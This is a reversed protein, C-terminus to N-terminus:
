ANKARKIMEERTAADGSFVLGLDPDLIVDQDSSIIEMSGCAHTVFPIKFQAHLAQLNRVSVLDEDRNQLIIGKVGEIGEFPQDPVERVILIKGKIDNITLNPTLHPFFVKARVRKGKGKRGRVIVEGIHDVSVMNTTGSVREHWGATLVVLDGYHIIEDKLAHCSALKFGLMIDSDEELIAQVGWVLAMKHHTTLNPTICVMPMRPRFRSIRICTSGSFSFSFIGRADASTATNVAALAISESVSYFGKSLMEQHRTYDFDNEAEVVIQAMMKVTEIPFQGVATEGSLMVADTGDWIANAIDSVEARTPTPNSIMSEMMQTATISITSNQNCKRIMMKQIHPVKELEVEVGLDGRAVMVGESSAIIEDINELGQVSEIKSIVGISPSKSRSIIQKIMHVQQANNVFSAAIWEVGEECAFLIDERDRDSVDPLILHSNPLNIGKSNKIFGDNHVKVEIGNKDKNVVSTRIAGDDILLTSGVEIQDIIDAPRMGIEARGEGKKEKVIWLSQGTAVFIPDDVCDTRIEPGSLDIMIALPVKLKERVEKAYNIVKRHAVHEGHSLNLRMVNMGAKVLAEVKELSATAPGITCVIKTRRHKTAM